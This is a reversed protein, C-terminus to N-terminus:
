AFLRSSNPKMKTEKRLGSKGGTPTTVARKGLTPGRHKRRPHSSDGEGSKRVQLCLKSCNEEVTLDLVACINQM